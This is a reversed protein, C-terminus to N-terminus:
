LITPPYWSHRLAGTLFHMSGPSCARTTVPPDNATRLAIIVPVVAIPDVPVGVVPM